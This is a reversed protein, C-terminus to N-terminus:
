YPGSGAAAVESTVEAFAQFRSPYGTPNDIQTATVTSYGGAAPTDLLVTGNLAPAPPATGGTGASTDGGWYLGAWAITAGAPITLTAGSSNFTTADSDADVYAMTGSNSLNIVTGVGNRANVCTAGSGACSMLTNAATALNGRAHTQWQLEFPRDAASAAAPALLLAVALFATLLLSRRTTPL